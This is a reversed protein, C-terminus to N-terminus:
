VLMMKELLLKLESADKTLRKDLVLSYVGKREDKDVFICASGYEYHIWSKRLITQVLLNENAYIIFSPTSLDIKDIDRLRVHNPKVHFGTNQLISFLNQIKNATIEIREFDLLIPLCFRKNVWDDYFGPGYYCANEKSYSFRHRVVKKIQSFLELSAPCHNEKMLCFSGCQLQNGLYYCPSFIVCGNDQSYLEMEAIHEEAFPLKMIQTQNNDFLPTGKQMLDNILEQLDDTNLYAYITKRM